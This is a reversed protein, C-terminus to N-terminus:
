IEPIAAEEQQVSEDYQEDDSEVLDLNTGVPAKERLGTNELKDDSM